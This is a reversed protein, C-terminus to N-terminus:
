KWIRTMSIGHLGKEYIWIHLADWESAFVLLIWYWGSEVFSGALLWCIIHFDMRFHFIYPTMRFRNNWKMNSFNFHEWIVSTIWFAKLNNFHQQINTRFFFNNAESCNSDLPSPNGMSLGCFYVCRPNWFFLHLRFVMSNHLIFQLPIIWSLINWCLQKTAVSHLESKECSKVKFRNHFYLFISFFTTM